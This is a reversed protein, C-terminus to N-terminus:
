NALKFLVSYKKIAYKHLSVAKLMYLISKIYKKNKFFSISKSFHVDMKNFRNKEVENVPYDFHSYIQGELQGANYLNILISSNLFQEFTYTQSIGNDRIRYQIAIEPSKGIKYGRLLARLSFDYDECYKINRYGALEDAIEKKLLWTPHNSINSIRMKKGVTQYDYSQLNTVQMKEGDSTIYQMPSFVFDLNNEQLYKLQKEFRDSKAIDDADMRAIYKGRVNKLLNNLSNVLGLNVENKIIKVRADEKSVSELYKIIDKANPNDIAILFEFDKYTQNIISEVSQRVWEVKENYTSMIVSILM